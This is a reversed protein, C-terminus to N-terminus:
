QLLWTRMHPRIPFSCLIRFFLESSEETSPYKKAPFTCIDEGDVMISGSTPREQLLLLRALTSKGAGSAGVIFVMEGKEIKFNVCDLATATPSYTKSVNIFEVMNAKYVENGVFTESNKLNQDIYDANHACLM